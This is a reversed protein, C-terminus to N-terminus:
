PWLLLAKMLWSHVCWNIWNRRGEWWQQHEAWTGPPVRLQSLHCKACCVSDPNLEITEGRGEKREGRGKKREGCEAKSHWSLTSTRTACSFFFCTTMPKRNNHSLSLQLQLSFSGSIYLNLERALLYNNITCLLRIAGEMSIRLFPKLTIGHLENSSYSM